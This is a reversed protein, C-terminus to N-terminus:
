LVRGEEDGSILATDRHLRLFALRLPGEISSLIDRRGYVSTPDALPTNHEPMRWPEEYHRDDDFFPMAMARYGMWVPSHWSLQSLPAQLRTWLQSPQPDCPQSDLRSSRFLAPGPFPLIPGPFIIARGQVTSVDIYQRLSELQLLFAGRGSRVLRDTLEMGFGSLCSCANALNSQLIDPTDPLIGIKELCPMPICRAGLGQIISSFYGQVSLLVDGRWASQSNDATEDFFSPGEWDWAGLAQRNFISIQVAVSPVDLGPQPAHLVQHQRLVMAQAGPRRFQSHNLRCILERRLFAWILRHREENSITALSAKGRQRGRCQDLLSDLGEDLYSSDAWPPVQLYACCIDSSTSKALYDNIYSYLKRSFADLKLITKAGYASLTNSFSKTAWQDMHNEIRAVPSGAHSIGTNSAPFALVAMADQLHDGPLERALLVRLIHIKSASAQHMLSPSARIASRIDQRSELSCLISELVEFPPRRFPDM